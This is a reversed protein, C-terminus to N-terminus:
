PWTLRTGDDSAVVFGPRGGRHSVDAGTVPHASAVFFTDARGVLARQEASLVPARDPPGGAVDVLAEPLRTSIYKPCNSYVEEARVLLRGHDDVHAQGNVRMRRRTAPEIAILGLALSGGSALSAALADGTSPQADIAITRADLAQAFGPAGHLVSAWVGGAADRHGVVVFPQEALFAVAAWPITEAIGGANLEATERVGARDQRRREGEHYSFAM